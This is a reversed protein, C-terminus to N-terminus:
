KKNKFFNELVSLRADIKGEACHCAAVNLNIGCDPCLGQCDERCLVKLPQNLLLSERIMPLLDIEEGSYFYVDADEDLEAALIGDASQARDRYDSSFPAAFVAETENLCRGCLAKVAAEVTGSVEMIQGKNLVTGEVKVKGQRWFDETETLEPFIEEAAMTFTFNESDAALKKLHLIHVKM